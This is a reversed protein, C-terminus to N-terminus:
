LAPRESEGASETRVSPNGISVTGWGPVTKNPITM